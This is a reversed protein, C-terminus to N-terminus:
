NKVGAAIYQSSVDPQGSYNRWQGFWKAICDQVPDGYARALAILQNRLEDARPHDGNM